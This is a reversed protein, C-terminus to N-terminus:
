GPYFAEGLYKGTAMSMISYGKIPHSPTLFRFTEHKLFDHFAESISKSILTVDLIHQTRVVHQAVSSLVNKRSEM